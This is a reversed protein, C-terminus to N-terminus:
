LLGVKLVCGFFLCPFSDEKLVNAHVMTLSLGDLDLSSKAQVRYALM